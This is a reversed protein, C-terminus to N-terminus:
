GELLKRVQPPLYITDLPLRSLGAKLIAVRRQLKLRSNIIIYCRNPTRCFGGESMLSDYIVKISLQAAVAELRKLIEKQTM